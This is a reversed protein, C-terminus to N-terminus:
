LVQEREEKLHWRGMSAEDLRSLVKGGDGQGGVHGTEWVRSWKKGLCM